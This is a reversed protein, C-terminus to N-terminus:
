SPHLEETKIQSRILQQAARKGTNLATEMSPCGLFDGAFYFNNLGQKLKISEVLSETAIPMANHWDIRNVLKLPKIETFHTPLEACICDFLENDSLAIPVSKKVRINLNIHQAVKKTYLKELNVISLISLGKAADEKYFCSGWNADGNVIAAGSFLITATVFRTYQIYTPTNCFIFEDAQMSGINTILQQSEASLMTCNLHIKVGRNVLVQQMADIFVKSGNKLYSASHMDGHLINQFLTAAMFGMKHEAVPAYCYGQLYTDFVDLYLQVKDPPLELSNLYENITLYNYANLNPATPDRDTLPAPFVKFFIQMMETFSLAFGKHYEDQANHRTAYYHPADPVNLLEESLNLETILQHYCKYWPYILFGGTDITQGNINCSDVRGGLHNNKEILHIEFNETGSLQYAASLGALGGGVIIVKKKTM